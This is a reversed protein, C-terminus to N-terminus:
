FWKVEENPITDKPNFEWIKNQNIKTKRPDAFKERVEDLEELIITIIRDPKALIDELDAMRSLKENLEDEIKQRELWALKNLKMELIADAQIVTFDFKAIM